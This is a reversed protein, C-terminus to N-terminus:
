YGKNGNVMAVEWMLIGGIIQGGLVMCATELKAYYIFRTDLMKLHYQLYMSTRHNVHLLILAIGRKPMSKNLVRIYKTLKM